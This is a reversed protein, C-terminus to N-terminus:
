RQLWPYANHTRFFFDDPLVCVGAISAGKDLGQGHGKDAGDEDTEDQRHPHHVKPPAFLGELAEHFILTQPDDTHHFPQRHFIQFGHDLGGLLPAPASEAGQGFLDEGRLDEEGLLDDLHRTLDVVLPLRIM